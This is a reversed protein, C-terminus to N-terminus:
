KVCTFMGTLKPIEIYGKKRRIKEFFDYLGALDEKAYSSFLVTSELWDILDQTQTIKLSDHQRHSDVHKFCPKLIAEGNELTFSYVGPRFAGLAPNFQHLADHLYLRMGGDSLTSAYFTGGPKLVRRVESLGKSLDPVHYLMHNAIVFNYTEDAFPIDQIDIQRITINKHDSFKERVTMLMGESYDSLILETNKPLRDIRATWFDGTGCGLELIRCGDFFHYHEFLWDHFSVPNTSYKQHLAARVSLNKSDAYQRQVAERDSVITM